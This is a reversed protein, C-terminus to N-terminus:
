EACWEYFEKWSDFLIFSAGLESEKEILLKLTKYESLSQLYSFNLNNIRVYSFKTETCPCYAVLYKVGDKGLMGIPTGPFTSLQTHTITDSKNNVLIQKM